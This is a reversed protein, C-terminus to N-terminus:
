DNQSLSRPGRAAIVAIEVLLHPLNYGSNVFSQTLGELLDPGFAALPQKTFHQFARNVFARQLDPSHNLYQALDAVGAFNQIQGQRDVYNGSANIEIDREAARFRGSADLSELVFGLGNIKQHCVQCSEPGTQLEVRQRTTLNPHLDPSLPAFDDAPPRLTRGLLYRYLVVGRHIPSTTNPYAFSVAFLPHTLLGKRQPDALSLQFRDLKPMEPDAAWTPGYYHALGDSTYYRDMQLLRRLDGQADTLLDTILLDFSQRLDQVVSDDFGPFADQNRRIEKAPDLHLWQYILDRYKAQVRFDSWKGWVVSRIDDDSVAEQAAMKQLAEDTPLSDFLVLALRNAVRQSESAQLDATTPYLFYPSKLGLLLTKKIALLDDDTSALPTDVYRARDAPSLPFRFAHQLLTALFDALAARSEAREPHKTQYDTQFAPWLETSAMEAFELAAATTAQDWQPSVLIGREYGYTQDDPPLTAQLSFSAPLWGPILQTQPITQELGGPPVWALRITAPPMETKRERQRMELKFPYVRGATLFLTKRFETQEGSQVHNDFFVREHRGLYLMFSTTCRVVIEYEGSHDIKLGGAWHVYFKNAQIDAGPGSQGFDFDITADVRDIKQEEKNWHEGNFYLGQAGRAPNNWALGGAMAAYLDAYSQRLQNATL